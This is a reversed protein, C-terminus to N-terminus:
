IESTFDCACPMDDGHVPLATRLRLALRTWPRTRKKRDLALSILQATRLSTRDLVISVVVMWSQVLVPKEATSEDTHEVLLAGFVSLEHRAQAFFQDGTAQWCINRQLRGCFLQLNCLQQTIGFLKPM